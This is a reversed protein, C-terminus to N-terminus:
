SYLSKRSVSHSIYLVVVVLHDYLYIQFKLYIKTYIHWTFDHSTFFYFKCIYIKSCIHNHLIYFM